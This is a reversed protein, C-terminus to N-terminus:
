IDIEVIVSSIVVSLSDIFRDYPSPQPKQFAFIASGEEFLSM